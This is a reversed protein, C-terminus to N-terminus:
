EQPPTAPAVSRINEVLEAKTLSRDPDLGHSRAVKVLEDKKLDDLDSVEADLVESALAVAPDVEVWGKHRHVDDFAQRTIPGALADIDPHRMTLYETEAM